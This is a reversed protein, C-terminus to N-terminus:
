RAEGVVDGRRLRGLMAEEDFKRHGHRGFVFEDDDGTLVVRGQSDEGRADM